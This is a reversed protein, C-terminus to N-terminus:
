YMFCYIWLVQGERGGRGKQKKPRNKSMKHMYKKGIKYICTCIHNNANFLTSKVRNQPTILQWPLPFPNDIEAPVLCGFHMWFNM